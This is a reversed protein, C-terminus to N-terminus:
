KDLGSVAKAFVQATKRAFRLKEGVDEGILKYHAIYIMSDLHIYRNLPHSYLDSIITSLMLPNDDSLYVENLLKHAGEEEEEDLWRDYGPTGPLHATLMNKAYMVGYGVGETFGKVYYAQGVLPWEEWLDARDIIGPARVSMFESPTMSLKSVGADQAILSSGLCLTVFFTLFVRVTRM